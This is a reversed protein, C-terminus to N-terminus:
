NLGGAMERKGVRREEGDGVGAAAARVQRCACSNNLKARGRGGAVEM